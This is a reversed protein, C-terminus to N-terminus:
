HKQELVQIRSELTQIWARLASTSHEVAVSPPGSLASVNRELDSLKMPVLLVLAHEIGEIREELGRLRELIQQIEIDDRPTM